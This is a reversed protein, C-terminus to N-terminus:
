RQSFSNKKLPEGLERILQDLREYRHQFESGLVKQRETEANLYHLEAQLHKKDWEMKLLEREYGLQRIAFAVSSSDSFTDMGGAIDARQGQADWYRRFYYRRHQRDLSELENMLQENLLGYYPNQSDQGANGSAAVAGDEENAVRSKLEKVREKMLKHFALYDSSFGAASVSMDMRAPSTEALQRQLVDRQGLLFQLDREAQAVAERNVTMRDLRSKLRAAEKEQRQIAESVAALQSKTTDYRERLLQYLAELLDGSTGSERRQELLTKYHTLQRITRNVEGLENELAIRTILEAKMERINGSALVIDQELRELEAAQRMRPFHRNFRDRTEMDEHLVFLRNRRKLLAVDEKLYAVNDSFIVERDSRSLVALLAEYNKVLDYLEPLIAQVELEEKKLGAAREPSVVAIRKETVTKQGNEGTWEVTVVYSGESLASSLFFRGYWVKGDSSLRIAPEDNWRAWVEVPIQRISASSSEEMEVAILVEQGPSVPEPKLYVAAGYSSTAWCLLGAILFLLNIFRM